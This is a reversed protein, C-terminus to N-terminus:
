SAFWPYLYTSLNARSRGECRMPKLVHCVRLIELSMECMRSVEEATCRPWIPPGLCAVGELYGVLFHRTQMDSRPQATQLRQHEVRQANEEVAVDDVGDVLDAVVGSDAVVAVVVHEEGGAVFGGVGM